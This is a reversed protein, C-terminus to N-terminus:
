RGMLLRLLVNLATLDGAARAGRLRALFAWLLMPGAFGCAMVLASGIPAGQALAAVLIGAFAFPSLALILRPMRTRTWADPDVPQSM